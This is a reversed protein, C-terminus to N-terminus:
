KKKNNMVKSLWDLGQYLGDGTTACCSEIHWERDNIKSLGLREKIENINLSTKLDKKNAFVLLPAGKLKEERLMEHLSDSATTESFYSDDSKYKGMREKDNSDVM